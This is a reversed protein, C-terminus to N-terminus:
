HKQSTHFRRIHAVLDKERLSNIFNDDFYVAFKKQKSHYSTLDINLLTQIIIHLIAEKHNDSCLPDMFILYNLDLM